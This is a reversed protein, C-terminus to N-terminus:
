AEDALGEREVGYRELFQAVRAEDDAKGERVTQAFEVVAGALAGDVNKAMERLRDVQDGATQDDVELEPFTLVHTAWHAVMSNAYADLALSLFAADKASLKLKVIAGPELFGVGLRELNGDITQPSTKM